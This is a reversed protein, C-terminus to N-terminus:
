RTPGGPPCSQPLNPIPVPQGAPYNPLSWFGGGTPYNVTTSSGQPKEAPVRHLQELLDSIEQHARQCHTVILCGPLTEIAGLKMGEPVPKAVEAGSGPVGPFGGGPGYYGSPGDGGAVSGPGGAMGPMTGLGTPAPTALTPVIYVWPNEGWSGPRVTRCIVRAVDEPRFEGPLRRLEYVRTEMYFEAFERTTIELVEDRVVYDLDHPELIRHLASQLSIGSIVLNIPTDEGVGFDTLRTRDLWIPIQHQESLYMLVESLETDIFELEVPQQLATAIRQETPSISRFDAAAEISVNRDTGTATGVDAALLAISYDPLGAAARAPSMLEWGGGIVGVAALCTTAIAVLTIMKVTSM